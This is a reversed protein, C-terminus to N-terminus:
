CLVRADSRALFAGTNADSVKVSVTFTTGTAGTPCRTVSADDFAITRTGTFTEHGVPAPTFTMTGAKVAGRNARAANVYQQAINAADVRKQTLHAARNSNVIGTTAGGIVAAFLVFSVVAELVTFGDDYGRGPRARQVLHLSTWRGACVRPAAPTRPM